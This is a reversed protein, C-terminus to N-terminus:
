LQWFFASKVIRWRFVTVDINVTGFPCTAIHSFWYLSLLPAFVSQLHFVKKPLRLITL